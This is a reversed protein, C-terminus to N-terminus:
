ARTAAVKSGAPHLNDAPLTNFGRHPAYFVGSKGVHFIRLAALDDLRVVIGGFKWGNGARERMGQTGRLHPLWDKSVVFERMILRPYAWAAAYSNDPVGFTGLGSSKFITSRAVPQRIDSFFLKGATNNVMRTFGLLKRNRRYLPLAIEVQARMATAPVFVDAETYLFWEYNEINAAVHNRHAWTTRFPHSLNHHVAVQVFVRRPAESSGPPTWAQLQGQFANQSNVDIVADIRDFMTYKVEMEALLAAVANFTFMRWVSSTKSKSPGVSKKAKAAAAAAAQDGADFFAVHALLKM